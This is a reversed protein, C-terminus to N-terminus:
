HGSSTLGFTGSQLVLEYVDWWGSGGLFRLSNTVMVILFSALFSFEMFFFAEPSSFVWPLIRYSFDLFNYSPFFHVSKKRICVDSHKTGM